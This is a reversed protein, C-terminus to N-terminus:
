LEWTSPNVMRKKIVKIKDEASIFFSTISCVMIVICFVLVDESFLTKYKIALLILPIVFLMPIHVVRTKTSKIGVFLLYALISYVYLPTGKIIQLFENM